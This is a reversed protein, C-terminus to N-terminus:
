EHAEHFGKCDCGPRRCKGGLHRFQRDGCGCMKHEPWSAANAPTAKIPVKSRAEVRKMRAEQEKEDRDKKGKM